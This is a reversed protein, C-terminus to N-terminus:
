KVHMLSLQASRESHVAGVVYLNFWANGELRLPVVRTGQAPSPVMNAVNLLHSGMPPIRIMVNSGAGAPLAIVRVRNTVNSLNLLLLDSRSGAGVYAYQYRVFAPVTRALGSLVRGAVALVARSWFPYHEVFEQRGHTAAYTVGDSLTVYLDSHTCDGAVTVYGCIAGTSSLPLEVVDTSDSLEVRHEARKLGTADYQTVRLKFPGYKYEPKFRAEVNSLILVCELGPRELWPLYYVLPREVGLLGRAVRRLLRTM